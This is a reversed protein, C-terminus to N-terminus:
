SRSGATDASSNLHISNWSASPIVGIQGPTCVWTVTTGVMPASICKHPLLYVEPCSCRNPKETESQQRLTGRDGVSRLMLKQYIYEPLVRYGSNENLLEGENAFHGLLRKDAPLKECLWYRLEHCQHRSTLSWEREQEPYGEAVVM